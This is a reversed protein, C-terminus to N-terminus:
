VILPKLCHFRDSYKLGALGFGAIIAIINKKYPFPKAVYYLFLILIISIIWHHLHFCTTESVKIFFSGITNGEKNQIFLSIIFSLIFINIISLNSTENITSENNNSEDMNKIELFSKLYLISKSIYKYPSQKLKIPPNIPPNNKSQHTSQHTFEHTSQLTSQSRSELRPKHTSQSRSELLPKYTSQSRSELHPKHTSQSRSELLPKYTSQSRSELRPKHTSQSRSELLPKYALIKLVTRNTDWMLGTNVRKLYKIYIHHLRPLYLPFDKTFFDTVFFIFSYCFYLTCDPYIYPFIKSLSIPSLFFLHTVFIFPIYQPFRKYISLLDRTLDEV